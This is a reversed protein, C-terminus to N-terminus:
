ANPAQGVFQALAMLAGDPDTVQAERHFLTELGAAADLLSGPPLRFRESGPGGILCEGLENVAETFLPGALHAEVLLKGGPELLDPLRNVLDLDAYRVIIILAYGSDLQPRDLDQEHWSVDLGAAEARRAGQALAASSIDVADVQYGQEALYLANRGAGCALDLARAGGRVPLWQEVMTALLASPHARQGYAGAKYRENWRKRDAESMPDGQPM